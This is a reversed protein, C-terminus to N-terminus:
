IPYAQSVKQYDCHLSTRRIEQPTADFDFSGDSTRILKIPYIKEADHTWCLRWRLLVVDFAKSPVAFSLTQDISLGPAIRAYKDIGFGHWRNTFSEIFREPEKTISNAAIAIGDAPKELTTETNSGYRVGYVNVIIGALAATSEGINKLDLRVRVFTRGNRLPRNDVTFTPAIRTPSTEPKIREQYVFVYIAWIAAGVFAIIEVIHRWHEVRSPHSHLHVDRKVEDTNRPM